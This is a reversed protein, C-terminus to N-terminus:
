RQNLVRELRLAVQALIFLETHARLVRWELGAPSRILVFKLPLCRRLEPETVPVEIHDTAVVGPDFIRHSDRLQGELQALTHVLLTTSHQASSEGRVAQM